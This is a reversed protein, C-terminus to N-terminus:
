ITVRREFTLENKSNLLGIKATGVAVSCLMRAGWSVDLLCDVVRSLTLSRVCRDSETLVLLDGVGFLLM